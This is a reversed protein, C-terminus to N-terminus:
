PPYQVRWKSLVLCRGDCLTSASGHQLQSDWACAFKRSWLRMGGKCQLPVTVLAFFFGYGRGVGIEVCRRRFPLCVFLNGFRRQVRWVACRSRDVRCFGVAAASFTKTETSPHIDNGTDMRRPAPRVAATHFVSSCRQNDNRLHFKLARKEICAM